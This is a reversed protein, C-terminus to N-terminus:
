NEWVPELNRGAGAKLGVKLQVSSQVLFNNGSTSKLVWPAANWSDIRRIIGPVTFLGLIMLFGIILGFTVLGQPWSNNGQAFFNLELLWAGILANGAAMYLGALYWGTKGSIVLISGIVVVVAGILALILAILSLPSSPARQIYSMVALVGSSIAALGIAIDNLTGFPQGIIFFLIILILAALGVIGTINIISGLATSPFNTSSM